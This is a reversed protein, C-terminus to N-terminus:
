GIAYSLPAARDQLSLLTHAHSIHMTASLSFYSIEDECKRCFGDSSLPDPSYSVVHVTTIALTLTPIAGTTTPSLTYSPM